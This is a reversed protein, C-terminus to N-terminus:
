SGALMSGTSWPSQRVAAPPVPSDTLTLSEQRQEPTM